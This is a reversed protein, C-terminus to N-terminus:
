ALMGVPERVGRRREWRLRPVEERLEEGLLNTTERRRSPTDWSRAGDVEAVCRFGAAKLSSGLEDARTYTVARQYGLAFGARCLAAYLISCGNAHGELVCVRVVELTTGDQLAAAVPRGAIGVGVVEGDARLSCGFLWGRQTHKSHRHHEQVFRRADRLSIPRVIM